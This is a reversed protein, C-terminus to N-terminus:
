RILSRQRDSPFDATYNTFRYTIATHDWKPGWLVYRAHITEKDTLNADTANYQQIAGCRPQSMVEDMHEDYTGTQPEHLVRQIKRIAAPMDADRITDNNHRLWGFSKFFEHVHKSQRTRNHRWSGPDTTPIASPIQSITAAIGVDDSTSTPLCSSIGSFTLIFLLAYQMEGRHQTTGLKQNINFISCLPVADQDLQFILRKL